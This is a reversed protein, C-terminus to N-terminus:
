PNKKVPSYPPMLDPPDPPRRKREWESISRARDPKPKVARPQPPGNDSQPVWAALWERRDFRHECVIGKAKAWRNVSSRIRNFKRRRAEDSPGLDGPDFRVCISRGELLAEYIDPYAWRRRKARLAGLVDASLDEVTYLAM